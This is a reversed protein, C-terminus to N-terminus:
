PAQGASRAAIAGDLETRGGHDNVVAYRVVSGLGAGVGQPLAGSASTFPALMTGSLEAVEQGAIHVGNLTVYYPTPNDVRLTGTSTSWQLRTQATTSTMGLNPPRHFFKIRSRFAINLQHEAGKTKPAIDKVNLWFLTERDTPLSSPKQFIRLTQSRKPDMRYLPPTIVYPIEAGDRRGDGTELWAEVLVPHERENTMRLTVEREQTPFVVRTGQIVVGARAAGIALGAAMAVALM